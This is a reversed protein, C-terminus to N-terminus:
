QQQGEQLRTTSIEAKMMLPTLTKPLRPPDQAGSYINLEKLMSLNQKVHEILAMERASWALIFRKAKMINRSQGQNEGGVGQFNASAYEQVFGLVHTIGIGGAICLITDAAFLPHLTARDGAYPGETLESLEM